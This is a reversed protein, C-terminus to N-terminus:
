FFKQPMVLQVGGWEQYGGLWGGEKKKQSSGQLAYTMLNEHPEYGSLVYTMLNENPEYGSLVYTMLNENPEYGSLVYTTQLRLAM